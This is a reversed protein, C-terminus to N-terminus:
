FVEKSEILTKLGACALAKLGACKFDSLVLQLIINQCCSVAAIIKSM